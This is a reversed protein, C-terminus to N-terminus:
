RIRIALQSEARGYEEWKWDFGALPEDIVAVDSSCFSCCCSSSRLFTLPAPFDPRGSFLLVPGSYQIVLLVRFIQEIPM